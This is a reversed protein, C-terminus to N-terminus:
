RVSRWSSVLIMEELTFVREYPLEPDLIPQAGKPFPQRKAADEASDHVWVYKGTSSECQRGLM